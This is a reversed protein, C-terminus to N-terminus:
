SAEDVDIAGIDDQITGGPGDGFPISTVPTCMPPPTNKHIFGDGIFGPFLVHTNWLNGDQPDFAMGRGNQSTLFGVTHTPICSGTAVVPGMGTPGVDYQLIRAATGAAEYGWLRSNFNGPPTNSEAIPDAPVAPVKYESVPVLQPVAAANPTGSTATVGDPTAFAPYDTSGGAAGSTFVLAAAVAIVYALRLTRLM